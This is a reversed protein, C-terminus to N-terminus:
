LVWWGHATKIYSELVKEAEKQTERTFLIHSGQRVQTKGNCAKHFSFGLKSFESQRIKM